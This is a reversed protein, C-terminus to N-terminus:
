KVGRLFSVIMPGVSEAMEVHPYHGAGDVLIKEGSIRSAVLQAEQAPDSFDADKTGMVVLSPVRVKDIIADTDAKSLNVMVDLADFRGPVRLMKGLAARYQEHDAPKHTPFLSNWYTTWFWTRWPGAFGIKLAAKVFLSSPIDRVVPAILVTSRVKEPAEYAAWIAAGAAFSNGIVIASRAGLKEILTLVDRGAAQASYDHWQVSSEGQGRIDMTVVRYGAQLLYPLLYRYQGRSDGMGPLAIVLTGAGGTDDYAIKGNDVDLYQTPGVFKDAASVTTSV